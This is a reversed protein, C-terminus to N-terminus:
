LTRATPDWDEPLAPIPDFRTAVPVFAATEISAATAFMAELVHLALRGTARHPEGARIARAM